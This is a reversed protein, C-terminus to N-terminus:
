ASLDKRRKTELSIIKNIHGYDLPPKFKDNVMEMLKKRPLRRHRYIFDNRLQIQPKKSKFRGIGIGRDRYKEQLIQIEKKWVVKNKIFDILDRQSAYPSIRIAIPYAADDSQEFLKGYPEEKEEVVDAVRFLGGSDLMALPSLKNYYVYFEVIDSYDFYHLRYKKCIKEIIENRLQDVLKLRMNDPPVMYYGYDPELGKAPIGYKKRVERIFNRFYDTKTIELFYNWMKQVGRSKLYCELDEEKLFLSDIKAEPLSRWSYKAM